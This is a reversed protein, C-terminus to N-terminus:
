NPTNGGGDVAEETYHVRVKKIRRGLTSYVELSLGDAQVRDGPSPIKGLQNYLFGGLTDFGVGAIASRFVENFTDLSVRADVVAEGGGTMEISPEDTDFEDEIEGVIEELADEITVIGAVGGYEDVVVAIHIHLEQLEQLLEDVRKSEPVFFSPRVLQELSQRAATDPGIATLLDRAYLIGVVNDLTERYVPLRSHGSERVMESAQELTSEVNVASVDVRPVMVERVATEELNLIAHIMARERPELPEEAIQEEVSHTAESSRDTARRAPRFPGPVALVALRLLTRWPWLGVLAVPSLRLVMGTSLRGVLASLLWHLLGMAVGILVLALLTIPWAVDLRVALLAVGFSFSAAVSVLRLAALLRQHEDASAGLTRVASAQLGTDPLIAKLKGRRIRWLLRQVGGLVSFTLASLVLFVLVLTSDSDM